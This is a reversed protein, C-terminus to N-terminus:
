TWTQRYELSLDWLTMWIQSIGSAPPICSATLDGVHLYLLPPVLHRQFKTHKLEISVM